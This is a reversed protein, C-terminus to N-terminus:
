GRSRRIQKVLQQWNGAGIQERQAPTLDAEALFRKAEVPDLSAYPYDTAFMIREIGLVEIAWRLYRQSYIGSPTVTVNRRFYDAIPSGLQAIQGLHAIRDLYFLIVEGWHGTIIQLDPHRDFVGGLMLRLLQVGTEYHWGLGHTAFAADVEESFGSYYAARVAATPTQPHLYLPARLAAATAFLPTYLPDDLNHEGTRGFLMAGHLGLECVARELERPAEDPAPTPLTAFGQFRDPHLRVTQALLDNSARALTCAQEPALNQVGPATLSLVQMAIGAADMYRLREGALDRLRQQTEDTGSALNREADPLAQWAAFVEPTVFHEELGILQM